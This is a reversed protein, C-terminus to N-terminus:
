GEEGTDDECEVAGGYDKLIRLYHVKGCECRIIKFALMFEDMGKYEPNDLSELWQLLSAEAQAKLEAKNM